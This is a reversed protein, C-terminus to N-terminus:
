AYSQEHNRAVAQGEQDLADDTTSLQFISNKLRKAAPMPIAVALQRMHSVVWGFKGNGDTDTHNVINIAHGFSMSQM